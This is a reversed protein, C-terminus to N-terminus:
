QILEDFRKEKVAKQIQNLNNLDDLASSDDLNDKSDARFLTNAPSSKISDVKYGSLSQLAKSVRALAAQPSDSTLIELIVKTSM